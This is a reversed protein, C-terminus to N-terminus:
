RRTVRFTRSASVVRRGRADRGVITWRYRGPRVIRRRTIRKSRPSASRVRRGNLYTHWRKVRSVVSVRRVSRKAGTGSSVRTRRVRAALTPTWRVFATRRSRVRRSGYLRLMSTRRKKKKASAAARQKAAAAAAAGPGFAAATAATQDARWDREKNENFWVIAQLRSMTSAQAFMDRIWASKDGGEPATGVEAIWIPQPGLVRLREYAGRFVTSFSQWGGFEPRTSGWNYGDVALVDVYPTGPYYQEMPNSAPVDVNNPSWVFRVNGAGHQRFITVMRRWAQVYLAPSNGNVTAGWPYWNGNMEHMPRLYVPAGIAALERAWGAIYADFEGGAIRALRYAPQNTGAAPDWPEWTLLPTRGGATVAGIVHPQVAAVWDGGGWNQYWNVIEVRRGTAAALADAGATSAGYPEGPTWAGFRLADASAATPMAVLILAVMTSLALATARHRRRTTRSM